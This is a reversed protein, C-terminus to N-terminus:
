QAIVEGTFADVYITCTYPGAEVAPTATPAPTIAQTAIAEALQVQTAAPLAAETHETVKAGATLAYLLLGGLSCALAIATAILLNIRNKTKHNSKFYDRRM